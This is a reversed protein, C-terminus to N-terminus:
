ARNRSERFSIAFLLRSFFTFSNEIVVADHAIRSFTCAMRVAKNKAQKEPAMQACPPKSLLTYGTISFAAQREQWLGSPTADPVRELERFGVRGGLSDFCKSSRQHIRTSRSCGSRRMAASCVWWGCQRVCASLSDLRAARFFHDQLRPYLASAAKRCRVRWANFYRSSSLVPGSM